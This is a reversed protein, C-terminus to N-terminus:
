GVVKRQLEKANAYTLKRFSGAVIPMMGSTEQKGPTILLLNSGMGAFEKEVYTQAGEGLSILQIVSMVGIIVGLMTLASRVKNQAISDLAVRLLELANM